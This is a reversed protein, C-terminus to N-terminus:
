INTIAVLARTYTFGKHKRTPKKLCKYVLSSSYGKKVLDKEGFLTDVVNGDKDIVLIDGKYQSHTRGNKIPNLGTDYAHKNNMSRDCWELNKIRNDSKIGNIHNIFEYQNPNSIFAIAILRHVYFTKREDNKSLHIREYGKRLTSIKIKGCNLIRIRGLNSVEYLGEHGEVAKWIEENM